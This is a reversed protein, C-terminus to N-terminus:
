IGCILLILYCKDKETCSVESLIINGLGMWTTALSLIESEKTASYFGTTQISRIKKIWEETCPCKAQTWMEAASFSAAIFM